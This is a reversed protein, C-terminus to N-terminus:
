TTKAKSPRARGIGAFWAMRGTFLVALTFTINGHTTANWDFFAFKLHPPLAVFTAIIHTIDAIALPTLMAGVLKEQVELNNSTTKRIAPFAFTSILGLLFYCNALQLTVQHSNYDPFREVRLNVASTPPLLENYFWLAGPYVYITFGAFLTSAPELYCFLYKYLGPLAPFSSNATQPTM